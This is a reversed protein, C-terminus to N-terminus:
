ARFIPQILSVFFCEGSRRTLFANGRIRFGCCHRCTGASYRLYLFLLYPVKGWHHPHQAFQRGGTHALGSVQADPRALHQVQTYQRPLGSPRWGGEGGGGAGGWQQDRGGPQLAEALPAPHVAGSWDILWDAFPVWYSDVTPVPVAYTLYPHLDGVNIQAGHWTIHVARSM